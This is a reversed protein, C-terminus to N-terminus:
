RWITSIEPATRAHALPKVGFGVALTHELSYHNFPKSGVAGPRVLPGLAALLVHGPKHPPDAGEDWTILITGDPGFTPSAEIKPV